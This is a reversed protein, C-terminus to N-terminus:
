RSVTHNLEILVVPLALYRVLHEQVLDARLGARAGRAVATWLSARGRRAGVGQGPSRAARPGRDNSRLGGSGRPAYGPATSAAGGQISQASLRKQLSVPAVRGPRWTCPPSRQGARGAAPRAQRWTGMEVSRACLYMRDCSTNPANLHTDASLPPRPGRGPVVERREKVDHVEVAAAAAHTGLGEGSQV